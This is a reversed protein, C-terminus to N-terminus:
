KTFNMYKRIVVIKHTFVHITMRALIVAIVFILLVPIFVLLVITLIFSIEQTRFRIFINKAVKNYSEFFISIFYKFAGKFLGLVAWGTRM